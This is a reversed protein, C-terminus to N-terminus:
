AAAATRRGLAYLLIGSAVVAATLLLQRGYSGADRFTAYVVAASFLLPAICTYAMGIRGGPVRFVRPAHPLARRFYVLALIELVLAGTYALNQVVVLDSFTYAALAASLVAVLLVSVVPVGNDGHSPAFVRPLWGDMALVAPIRSIWLLSASFLSWMSVMGGVALVVGLAPGGFREAIAPWGADASWLAPDATAGVGAFVPVLYSLVTFVLAAGLAIPYSRQPQEVEGAYSSAKEWASYNFVIVSLGLLLDTRRHAALDQAIVGASQALGPGTLAWGALYALFACVVLVIAILASRGVDLAGFLNVATGTAVVAAAIGWKVLPQAFLAPDVLGGGVHALAYALYSVFLVPFSALQMLGFAFTWWAEQVAWFRGFAQRVWIYYGGEDPLLATLEAALLAIPLSYILPTLIILAVAWGPGVAGVLPEMGYAGACVTCYILGTLTAVGLRRAPPLLDQSQGIQPSTSSL